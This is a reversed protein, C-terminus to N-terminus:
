GESSEEESGESDADEETSKAGGRGLISAILFEDKKKLSVNDPLNLSNSRIKGGVPIDSIDLDIDDIVFGYNKCILDVMRINIHLFGGRKLAASKDQGVFNIRSKINVKKDKNIQNFDVHIPRDSVTHIDVDNTILDIKKGAIDLSIPTSFVRGDFYKKDFEKQDVAVYTIDNGNRITAPLLGSKRLRRCEASGLITRVNAKIINVQEVM